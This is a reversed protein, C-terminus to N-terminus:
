KLDDGLNRTYLWQIEDGDSLTYSDCGVSGEEGNVFYMWGSLDGYDFEYLYNIGAIYVMGGTGSNEMHIKNRKTAEVLIDYVTDGEEIAYEMEELIVGDKPIYKSDTEDKITDCRITLTVTGIVNEKVPIDDSYYQEKSKFDTLCIFIIALLTLIGIGIFNKKNRKEKLYFVISVIGSVILVGISAWLKYSTKHKEGNKPTNKDSQIDKTENEEIDNEEKKNDVLSDSKDGKLSCNDLIYLGSKGEKMRIYSVLSYYAQVTASEHYQDGEKHGFAGNALKYKLLGDMLTNENKIFREDTFGDIGLSSLALIVQATSETNPVGYSSYNGDELQQTSLWEVAKDIATKIDTESYYPALAQITMSTVDVDSAKGTISWGGDGIQLSLLEDKISEITWESSKYGNNLLHLGYVYSMIGQKGISDELTKSIYVDTSGIASLVLAYKLRSSASYVENEQLYKLLANEYKAFDYKGSQALALVYWEATTGANDVLETDIWEQISDVGACDQQYALIGDILNKAEGVTDLMNTRTNNSSKQKIETAYVCTASSILIFITFFCIIKKFYKNRM